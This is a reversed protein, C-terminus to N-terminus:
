TFYESHESDRQQKRMRQMFTLHKEKHDEDPVFVRKKHKTVQRAAQIAIAASVVLDKGSLDVDGDEDYALKLMERFLDMDNIDIEDANFYAIFDDFMQHKTKKNTHWGIKDTIVDYQKSTDTHRYINSYGLSKLKAIVAHGHNNAEPAILANNYKEALKKLEVAFEDPPLKCYIRGAQKFNEVDLVFAASWDGSELGEAVDAGIVYKLNEDYLWQRIHGTDEYSKNRCKSMRAQILTPSFVSRGSALFAEEPACPYEQRFKDEDGAFDNAIKYRRWALQYLDIKFRKNLERETSDCDTFYFWPQMKYRPNDFWPVFFFKYDTDGRMTAECFDYFWAGKGSMGNATSEILISTYPAVPITQVLGPITEKANPWFGIESIHLNYITSSRGATAQNGATEVQIRSLLGPDDLPDRARPNQFVLERSNSDKKMPRMIEPCFDYFRKCMNFINQTSKLDHAIIMSNTYPNTATQWYVYGAGFTSMGM